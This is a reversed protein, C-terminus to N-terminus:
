GFRPPRKALFAAVGEAFDPGDFADAFMALTAPDDFDQGDLIRRIMAKSQRVSHPSAALIPAVIADPGDAIQDILGIRLAEASDLLAGGYLIRKATAPGVLEVLLKTDHFPYVLGLRAPTIGSRSRATAVRLDCAMALGCGAGVCDGDIFAVTPLPARALSYQARNIAEQNALRWAPDSANASLEAIDAGACFVGPTASALILVRADGTAALLQPIAAFMAMTMANRKDARDILLRAVPGDRELRISPATDQIM